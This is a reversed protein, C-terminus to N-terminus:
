GTAHRRGEAFFEVVADVDALQRMPRAAGFPANWFPGARPRWPGVYAYPEECYGDGPSVGYNIEGVSIAVDLHEPWLVPVEAPAFRRLATDGTAFCDALYAAAAVDAVLPQDPAVTSGGPYLGRPAGVEVGAVGALETCSRGNIPIPGDPTVLDVIAVRLDPQRTTAFGDPTVRLRITGTRRHQPGALVLEAVAHWAHRTADIPRAAPVDGTDGVGPQGARAPSLHSRRCPVADCAGFGRWVQRYAGAAFGPRPWKAGGAPPASTPRADASIQAHPPSAGAM